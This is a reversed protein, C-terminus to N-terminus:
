LLFQNLNTIFELPVKHRVLVEAQHSKKEDPNLNTYNKRFVRFDFSQLQEVKNSFTVGNDIANMDSHWTGLHYLIEPKIQLVIMDELRGEKKASFSM